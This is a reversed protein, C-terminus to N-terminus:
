RGGAPTWKMDYSTLSWSVETTSVVKFALYKNTVRCDIKEQTAPDFSFPGKWVVPSNASDNGGVYIDVAGSSEMDIYVANCYKAVLTDGFHMGTREIRSTYTIGDFTNSEDAIFIKQSDPSAMLPYARTPDYKVADDWSGINEDWSTGGVYTPSDGGVAVTPSVGQHIFAVDPLDRFGIANTRWNWVVARNAWTSGNSPYCAWMESRIFFPTVFCKSFNGGGLQDFVERRNRQDLVSTLNQGDNIYCDNVGFVFHGNPFEAMCRRNIAGTSESIKYFRFIFPPGIFQAGWISDEKYIMFSDRLESGDIIDGPTDALEYEGADQTADTEDWTSPVSNFSSSNSWKLMRPYNTGSPNTYNMAFMFQKFSRLSQCKAGAPWNSLDTLKTALNAPAVWQQPADVGNNLFVVGGMVGGTWGKSTDMAYTSSDRTINAQVVGDTAFVSSSGAYVWYADFGQVISTLWYPDVSLRGIEQDAFADIHGECKEISDEYARVNEGDSFANPPLNYPKVDKIIGYQGLQTIPPM